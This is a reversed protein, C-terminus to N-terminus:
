FVGYRLAVCLKKIKQLRRKPGKIARLAHPNWSHNRLRKLNLYYVRMMIIPARMAKPNCLALAKKADDYAQEAIDGMKECIQPINAHNAAVMPTDYNLSYQELLERPLYLRNIEADEPVDRIINTLQLALGLHDAVKRGKEDPQGFIPVCLRGVASAVRDCYLLLDDMTPAIIPGDVDMQMGDIIAIFDDQKLNYAAITDTLITLIAANPASRDITQPNTYLESIQVRWEDLAARKNDIPLDGDAIDDVERCFAYVAFIAQRRMKPLLRMAWFFSSGSHGVIDQVQNHAWSMDTIPQKSM